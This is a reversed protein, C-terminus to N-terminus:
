GDSLEDFVFVCIREGAHEKNIKIGGDSNVHTEVSDNKRADYSTTEVSAGAKVPVWAARHDDYKKPINVWGSDKVEEIGSWVVETNIEDSMSM